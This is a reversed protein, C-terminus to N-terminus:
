VEDARRAQIVEQYVRLIAKYHDRAQYKQLYEQRCNGGMQAAEEEHATMWGVREAFAESNGPPVLWGHIGPKIMSPMAGLDTSIVPTGTAFAEILTRPMGEYWISPFVLCAAQRMLDLVMQPSRRGLWQVNGHNEVADSVLESLPGDGVIKLTCGAPFADLANLLTEVGKEQTLRGVFLVYPSRRSGVGPDNMIFNPVVTLKAAPLGGEGFKQAAFPTLCLFRDVQKEWTKLLRHFSLMAATVGSASWSSRYCRYRVAPWPFLRNTCAECVGGARFFTAAPCLLRYNHLTQVVPVGASQCVAYAAPSILQFTNHFHVIDPRFTRIRERLAKRAPASWLTRIGTQFLGIENVQQNHETYTEVPHGFTRLLDVEDNFIADEGGPQQYFNHAMLIRM